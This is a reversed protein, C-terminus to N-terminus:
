CKTGNEAWNCNVAYQMKCYMTWHDHISTCFIICCYESGKLIEGYKSTFLTAGLYKCNEMHNNRTQKCGVSQINDTQKQCINKEVGLARSENTATTVGLDRWMFIKKFYGYKMRETQSLCLIHIQTSFFWQSFNVYKNKTNKQLHLCFNLHLLIYEHVCMKYICIYIHQNLIFNLIQICCTWM